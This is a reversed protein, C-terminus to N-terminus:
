AVRRHRTRNKVRRAVGLTSSAGRAADDENQM